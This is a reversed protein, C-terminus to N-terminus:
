SGDARGRVWLPGKRRPRHFCQQNLNELFMRKFLLLLIIPCDTPCYHFKAFHIKRTKDKTMDRMDTVRKLKFGTNREMRVSKSFDKTKYIGSIALRARNGAGTICIYFRLFKVSCQILHWWWRLLVNQSCIHIQCRALAPFVVGEFSLWSLKIKCLM